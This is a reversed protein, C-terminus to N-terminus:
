FKPQISFHEATQPLKELAKQIVATRLARHTNQPFGVFVLEDPNVRTSLSPAATSNAASSPAQPRLPPWVDKSSSSNEVKKLREDMASLTELKTDVQQLRTQFVEESKTVANKIDAVEQRIEQKFSSVEEQLEQFKETRKDIKQIIRFMAELSFPEQDRENDSAIEFEEANPGCKAKAAAPAANSNGREPVRKPRETAM